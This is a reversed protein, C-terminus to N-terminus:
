REYGYLAYYYERSILIRNLATQTIWAKNRTPDLKRAHKQIEDPFVVGAFKRSIFVVMLDRQERVFALDLEIIGKRKKM